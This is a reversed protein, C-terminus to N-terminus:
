GSLKKLLVRAQAAASNGRNKLAKKLVRVAADREGLARYALALHYAVTSNGGLLIDANKLFYVAEKARGKKLLVYGFTDLVKPNEPACRFAKVALDYAKEIKGYDNVYLYALNNLAPAYDDSISLAARYQKIAEKKNGIREYLTGISFIALINKPDKSLVNKYVKVALDTQGIQTYIKAKKLEITSVDVVENLANDLVNLSKKPKKMEQYISSLVLYGRTSHPNKSIYDDVRAVAKEFHGAKMYNFAINQIETGPKLREINEYADIAENYKHLDSYMKGAYRLMILNSPNADIFESVKEVAIEDQKNRLLYSVLGICGYVNKTKYAKEFYHLARAKEGMLEYIMGTLLIGKVNGSDLKLISKCEKLATGFEGKTMYYNALNYYPSFYNPKSKKALKLCKIAVAPKKQGFYAAALENFILADSEKGSLGKTLVKIAESYNKHRLYYSGLALRTGPIEPGLSVARSLEREASGDEGEVLALIGKEFHAGVLNPNYEIAKNFEDMAKYFMGKAVYDSGLIQHGLANKPELALAEKVENESDDYRHQRLLTMAVMIRAYNFKPHFDLIRQYENLALELNNTNSLSRGLFYMSSLTKQIQNAKQFQTIAKEYKKSYYLVVGMLQYGFCERPFNKTLNKAILGAKELKNMSVALLGEMYFARPEAPELKALRGFIESARELNGRKIELEGLIGNANLDKPNREVMGELLLQAKKNKGERFYVKALNLKSDEFSPNLKIASSFVQEAKKLKGKLTYAKGLIDLTKCDQGKSKVYSSIEMIAKDPRRTSVYLEAFKLQLGPFSPDQMRVKRLEREANNFNKIRIYSDALQYRAEFYNGDKRLASRFLVISGYINGQSKLLVGEKVFEQKTKGVCGAFCFSIMILIIIKFYKMGSNEKLNTM